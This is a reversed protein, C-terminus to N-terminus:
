ETTSFSNNANIRLSFASHTKISNKMMGLLEEKAGFMQVRKKARTVATYLAEKGFNKSGPPFLLIVEEYESGQSKHISLYFALEYPPCSTFKQMKKEESDFFFAAEIQSGKGMLVGEMGNYLNQWSDNVTALIPVAWNKSSFLAKQFVRQNLFDAGWRGQRLPTLVKKKQFEQLAWYPDIPEKSFLPLVEEEYSFIEEEYVISDSKTKIKEEFFALDERQIAEALEQLDKTEIRVSRDLSVGLKEKMELFLSFSGVPPLQDPDGILVLFTEEKVSGLLNAMLSLDIMSAEDILILDADITQSSFFAEKGPYVKLLRHLTKSELELCSSPQIARHLSSVAKGTPAAIVVRLKEKEKRDFSNCLIEVLQSATYSKGTGPGGSILAFSSQLLLSIAEKQKPFLSKKSLNEEFAKPDFWRPSKQALIRQIEQVLYTEYVWNKQLYYFGQSFVIPTKEFLTKGEKAISAPLEKIQKPLLSSPVCLYGKRSLAMLEQLAREKEQSFPEKELLTKAFFLDLIVDEM